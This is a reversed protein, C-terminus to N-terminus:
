FGFRTQIILCYRTPQLPDFIEYRLIKYKKILRSYLYNEHSHEFMHSQLWNAPFVQPVSLVRTSIPM